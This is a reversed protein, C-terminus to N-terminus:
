SGKDTVLHEMSLTMKRIEFNITVIFERVENFEIKRTIRNKIAWETIFAFLSLAFERPFYQM